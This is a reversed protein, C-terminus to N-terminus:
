KIGFIKGFTTGKTPAFLGLGAIQGIGGLMANRNASELQAMTSNAQFQMARDNAYNSLPGSYGAAVNLGTQIGRLPSEGLGMIKGFTADERQMGRLERAGGLQEALTLQGTRAASRLEDARKRFNALAEIGPTSTEWGPGLQRTMQDRLQREGESLDRELAPDVELEGKLAKLSRDQFLSEIEAAKQQEPTLAAKRYGTLAGAEDRQEEIGLESFLLPRLLDQEKLARQLQETQGRLINTQERLLALEEPSKGPVNINTDGGGFIDSVFSM